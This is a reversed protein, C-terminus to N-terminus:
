LLKSKYHTIIRETEAKYFEKFDQFQANQEWVKYLVARLRQSQTKPNDYLDTDLNDLENVEEPTLTQEAKFYLYGYNDVLQDIQMVEQSGKEGTVFTLSISRDKRRNYRDLIASTILKM